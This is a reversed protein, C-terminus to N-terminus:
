KKKYKKKMKENVELAKDAADKLQDKSEKLGKKKFSKLTQFLNELKVDQM